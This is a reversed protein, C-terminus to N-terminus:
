LLMLIILPSANQHHYCSLWVSQTFKLYIEKNLKIRDIEYLIKRMSFETVRFDVDVGNYIQAHWYRLVELHSVKTSRDIEESCFLQQTM